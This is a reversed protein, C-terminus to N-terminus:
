TSSDFYIDELKSFQMHNHNNLFTLFNEVIEEM